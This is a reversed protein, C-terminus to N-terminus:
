RSTKLTFLEAKGDEIADALEAYTPDEANGQYEHRQMKMQHESAANEIKTAVSLLGLRKSAELEERSLNDEWCPYEDREDGNNLFEVHDKIYESWKSTLDYLVRGKGQPPYHPNADPPLVEQILKDVLDKAKM